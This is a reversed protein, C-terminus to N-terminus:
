CKNFSTKSKEIIYVAKLMSIAKNIEKIYSADNNLKEKYCINNTGKLHKKANEPIRNFLDNNTIDPINDILGILDSLYKLQENNDINESNATHDGIILNELLNFYNIIDQYIDNLSETIINDNKKTKYGKNDISEPYIRILEKINNIIKSPLTDITVVERIYESINKDKSDAKKKIANYDDENLRITIQTQKTSKM